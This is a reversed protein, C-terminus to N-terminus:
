KKKKLVFFALAAVPLIAGGATSGCGSCGANGGQSNESTQTESSSNGGSSDDPPLPEAQAQYAAYIEMEGSVSKAWPTVSFYVASTDTLHESGYVASSPISFAAEEFGYVAIRLEFEEGKKVTKLQFPRRVANDYKLCNASGLLSSQKGNALYLKGEEFDIYVLLNENETYKDKPASSFMFGLIKSDGEFELGGFCLTLGDMDFTRDVGVANNMTAGTWSVRVGCFDSDELKGRTSSPILTYYSDKKLANNKIEDSVCWTRYYKNEAAQLVSYKSVRARRSYSMANYEKRLAFIQEYSDQTVEGLAELKKDFEAAAAIDKETPDEFTKSFAPSEAGWCDKAVIEVTCPYTLTLGTFTYSLTDPIERLDPYDIWPSLTSVSSLATGGANKLTITYSYVMDDDFAKSYDIRAKDTGSPVLEMSAASGFFPAHNKDARAATYYALHSKDAKPAPVIWVDKIQKRKVFDIRTIRVNDNEDVEVITGQSHSRADPMNGSATEVTDKNAAVDSSGGPTFSTYGTQMISLENNNAYHTHGSILFAQPYNNLIADFDKSAGWIGTEDSEYSGYITNMQPSHCSIFIPKGPAEKDIKALTTRLWASTESSLNNYNPMFTQIQVTLFHYGNFVIHRNGKKASEKDVDFTYMDEGFADYFEETTMCGSWYTDHNGHAVVAPVQTLDYHKRLVGMFTDVQAKKGDQTNDGASLFVDIGQPAFESLVELTNDFIEENRGYGIHPDTIAALTLAIHKEDFVQGTSEEAFTVATQGKIETNGLQLGAALLAAASLCGVLTRLRKGRM